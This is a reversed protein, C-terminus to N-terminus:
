TISKCTGLTDVSRNVIIPVPLALIFVAMLACLGGLVQLYCPSLQGISFLIILLVHFCMLYHLSRTWANCQWDEAWGGPWGLQAPEQGRHGGHHAGDAGVLLQGGILASYRWASVLWLGTNGTLSAGAATPTGSPSTSWAAILPPTLHIFFSM